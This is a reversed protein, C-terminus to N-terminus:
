RSVIRQQHHSGSGIFGGADKKAVPAVAVTAFCCDMCCDVGRILGPRAADKIRCGQGQVQWVAGRGFLVTDNLFLGSQEMKPVTYDM